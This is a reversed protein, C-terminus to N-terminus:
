STIQEVKGRIWEALVAANSHEGDKAAFLLTIKGKRASIASLFDKAKENADLETFYRKKFEAFKEADHGYWKRLETSPAIDKAWLDIEAKEKTLGRAWLRDVFVRLGDDASPEEYIRKIKINM